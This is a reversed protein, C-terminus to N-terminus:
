AKIGKKYRYGNKDGFFISKSDHCNSCLIQLNEPNNYDKKERGNIHDVQFLKYATERKQNNSLEIDRYLFLCHRNWHSLLSDGCGKCKIQGLSEYQGFAIIRHVDRIPNNTRKFHPLCRKCCNHHPGRVGKGREIVENKCYPIRCITKM